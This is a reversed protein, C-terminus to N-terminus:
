SSVVPSILYMTIMFLSSSNNFMKGSAPSSGFISKELYETSIPQVGKPEPRSSLIGLSKFCFTMYM